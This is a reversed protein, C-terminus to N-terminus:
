YALASERVAYSPSLSQHAPRTAEPPAPPALVCAVSNSRASCGAAMATCIELFVLVIIIIAPTTM